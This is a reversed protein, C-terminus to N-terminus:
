AVKVGGLLLINLDAILPDLKGELEPKARLLAELHEKAYLVSFEWPYREALQRCNEWHSM